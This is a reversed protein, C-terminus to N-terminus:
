LLTETNGLICVQFFGCSYFGQRRGWLLMKRWVYVSSITSGLAWGLPGQQQLLQLIICPLEVSSPRTLYDCPPWVQLGLVRLPPPLLFM